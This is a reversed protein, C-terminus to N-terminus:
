SILYLTLWSILRHFTSDAGATASFNYSFAIEGNVKVSKIQGREFSAVVTEIISANLGPGLMEPHKPHGFGGMSNSSRISQTDSTGAMSGESQLASVATPKSLLGAPPQPVAPSPSPPFASAPDSTSGEPVSSPMYITNRVDRRGRVTAKRAPAALQSLANAVNSMAAKNADADEEGVPQQQINLKFLQESEAAAEKQAESIPDNSSSPITFGESDKKAEPEKSKEPPPGPPPQYDFIAAAEDQAGNTSPGPEASGDTWAPGTGNTTEHGTKEKAAPEKPGTPSSPSEVVSSLRNM